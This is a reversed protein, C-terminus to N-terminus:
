EPICDKSPNSPRGVVKEGKQPVPNDNNKKIRTRSFAQVRKGAQIVEGWGREL